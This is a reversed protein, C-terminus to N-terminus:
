QLLNNIVARTGVCGKSDKDLTIIVPNFGQKELEHSRIVLYDDVELKKVLSGPYNDLAYKKTEKLYVPRM